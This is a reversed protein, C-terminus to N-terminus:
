SRDLPAIFLMDCFSGTICKKEDEARSDTDTLRQKIDKSTQSATEFFKIGYEDALAQGKSTPVARKSEDMDTKNGVLIKNVNDSAHHEINRNLETLPHSTQSMMCWCFAWQEKTILQLPVTTITRFREQGATDWIQLKIRKTITRIKFDIHDWSDISVYGLRSASVGAGHIDRLAQLSCRHGLLSHALFSHLLPLLARGMEQEPESGVVLERFENRVYYYDRHRYHSRRIKGVLLMPILFAPLASVLALLLYELETFTEYLKYPVVIGLSLTLWFPTYFLFFLEGWRKSPNAALWLSGSSTGSMTIIGTVIIAGGSRSFVITSKFSVTRTHSLSTGEKYSCDSLDENLSSVHCM